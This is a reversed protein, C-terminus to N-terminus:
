KEEITLISLKEELIETYKLLECYKERWYMSEKRATEHDMNNEELTGLILNEPRNDSKIGNLHRVVM